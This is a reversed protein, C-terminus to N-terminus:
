VRSSCNITRTQSGRSLPSCVDNQCWAECYACTRLSPAPLGCESGAPRNLRFLWCGQGLNQPRKISWPCLLSVDWRPLLWQDFTECDPTPMWGCLPHNRPHFSPSDVPAQKGSHWSSFSLILCFTGIWLTASSNMPNVLYETIPFDKGSSDLKSQHHHPPTNLPPPSPVLYLFLLFPWTCLNCVPLGIQGTFMNQKVRGSKIVPLDSM